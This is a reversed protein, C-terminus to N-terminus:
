QVGERELMRMEAKTLEGVKRSYLNFKEIIEKRRSASTSESNLESEIDIVAIEDELIKIEAELKDIIEQEQSVMEAQQQGGMNQKQQFDQTTRKIEKSREDTEEGRTLSKTPSSLKIKQAEFSGEMKSESFWVKYVITSVLSVVLVMMLYKM